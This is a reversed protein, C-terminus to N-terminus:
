NLCKKLFIEREVPLTLFFERKKAMLIKILTNFYEALDQYNINETLKDYYRAFISYSDKM